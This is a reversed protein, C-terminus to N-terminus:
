RPPVLLAPIIPMSGTALVAIDPKIQDVWEGTLEDDLRVEIGSSLVRRTLYKTFRAFGKKGPPKSVLVLQEELQSAKDVLYVKHGREFAPLAAQMGASGAGLVLVKKMDETPAIASQAERGATPNLSCALPVDKELVNQSCGQCCYICPRIDEIHGEM